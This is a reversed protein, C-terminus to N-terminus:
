KIYKDLLHGYKNETTENKRRAVGTETPNYSFNKKTNSEMTFKGVMLTLKERVEELTVEAPNVKAKYVLFEACKGLKESYKEFLSDIEAKHRVAKAENEKAEYEEIKKMAVSYSASLDEYATKMEEMKRNFETELIATNEKTKKETMAAAVSDIKSKIDFEEFNEDTIKDAASLSMEVKSNFDIVIDKVDAENTVAYDFGYPKYDEMDLAFVKSDTVNLLRYKCTNSEGIKVTSLVETFKKLDMFKKEEKNPKTTANNQVTTTATNNTGDSEYQKLKELMLEFNQKFKSENISFRKVVSDEFCPASNDEPNETSKGLLCLAQLSFDNIVIYDDDWETENMRIEMSHNFYIEDSYATEMLDPFYHSWLIVDVSFYEREIGHKDIIKEFSPDCNEPVVGMATCENIEQIGDNSIELKRDHSGMIKKGNKNLKIHGVVPVNAYGKREILKLVANKTIDTYNRNRGPYMVNCRCRIFDPNLVKFNSFKATTDIKKFNDIDL